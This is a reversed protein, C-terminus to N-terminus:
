VEEVKYVAKTGFTQHLIGKRTLTKEKVPSCLNRTIGNGREWIILLGIIQFSFTDFYSFGESLICVFFAM